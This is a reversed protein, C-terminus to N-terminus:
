RDFALWYGAAVFCTRFNPIASSDFDAGFGCRVAAYLLGVGWFFSV